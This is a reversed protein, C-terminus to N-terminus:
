YGRKLKRDWRVGSVESAFRHDDVAVCYLNGPLTDTQMADVRRLSILGTLVLFVLFPRTALFCHKSQRTDNLKVPHTTFALATVLIPPQNSFAKNSRVVDFSLLDALSPRQRISIKRHVVDLLFGFSFFVLTSKPTALKHRRPLPSLSVILLRQFELLKNYPRDFPCLKHFCSYGASRCRSCVVPTRMYHDIVM